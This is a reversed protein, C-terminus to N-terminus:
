KFQKLILLQTTMSVCLTEMNRHQEVCSDKVLCAGVFTACVDQVSFVHVRGLLQVHICLKIHPPQLLFHQSISAIVVANVIQCLM